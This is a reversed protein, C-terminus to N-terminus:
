SCSNWRLEGRFATRMSPLRSRTPKWQEVNWNRCCLIRKFGRRTNPSSPDTSRIGSRSSDGSDSSARGATAVKGLGFCQDSRHQVQPDRFLPRAKTSPMAVGPSCPGPAVHQSRAQTLELQLQKVQEMLQAVDPGTQGPVSAAEPQLEDTETEEQPGLEEGTFYDQATTEDLGQSIWEDAAARVTKVSPKGQSGNCVFYTVEFQPVTSGRAVRQLHVLFGWPLDVLLCDVQGITRGRNTVLDVEAQHYAAEGDDGGSVADLFSRVEDLAPVVVMFGGTRQYVPYCVVAKQVVGSASAETVLWLAQLSAPKNELVLGLLDGIAEETLPGNVSAPAAM